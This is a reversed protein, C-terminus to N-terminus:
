FIQVLWPHLSSAEDNCVQFQQEGTDKNKIKVFILKQQVEHKKSCKVKSRVDYKNRFALEKKSSSCHFGFIDFSYQVKSEYVAKGSAQEPFQM